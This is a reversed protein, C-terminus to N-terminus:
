CHAAERSLEESEANISLNFVELGVERLFAETVLDAKACAAVASNQSKSVKKLRKSFFM